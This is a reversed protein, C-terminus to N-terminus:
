SIRPKFSIYMFGAPWKSVTSIRATGFWVTSAPLLQVQSCLSFWSAAFTTFPWTVEGAEPVAFTITTSPNFLNPPSSLQFEIAEIRRAFGKRHCVTLGWQPFSQRAQTRVAPLFPESSLQSSVFPIPNDNNILKKGYRKRGTANMDGASIIM